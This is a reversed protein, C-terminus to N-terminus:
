SKTKLSEVEPKGTTSLVKFSIVWIWPNDAWSGDGNIDQWLFKFATKADVCSATNCSYLKYPFPSNDMKEMGEAKADEESIDQLREVRISEVQLWIRAAEKPMHISPYFPQRKTFVFMENNTPDPKIYGRDELWDVKDMLWSSDENPDHAICSLTEGTAYRVNMTGEEFDWGKLQWTERVWLLDGARGFRSKDNFFTKVHDDESVNEPCHSVFKKWSLATIFTSPQPNIIRRTQTKRGELIAQIMPTSFLIPIEKM